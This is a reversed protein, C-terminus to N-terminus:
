TNYKILGNSDIHGKIKPNSPSEVIIHTGPLIWVRYTLNRIPKTTEKIAKEKFEKALDSENANYNLAWPSKIHNYCFKNGSVCKNPCKTDNKKPYICYDSNTDQKKSFNIFIKSISKIIKKGFEKELKLYLKKFVQQFFIQDYKIQENEIKINKFFNRTYLPIHYEQFHSDFIKCLTKIKISNDMNKSINYIIKSLCSTLNQSNIYTDKNSEM